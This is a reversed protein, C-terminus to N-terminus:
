GRLGIRLEKYIRAGWYDVIGDLDHHRKAHVWLASYTIREGTDRGENLPELDRLISAYTVVCKKGRVQPM